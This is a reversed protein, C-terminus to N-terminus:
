KIVHNIEFYFENINAPMRRIVVLIELASQVNNLALM